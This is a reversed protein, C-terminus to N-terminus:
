IIGVKNLKLLDNETYGLQKCYIDKNHQGLLPAARRISWPTESLKFPAGPCTVKGTGEREIDVFFGRERFHQNEVAEAISNVPALPSKKEKAMKFIEAKTHQMTWELILPELSEWHEARSTREKFLEIEAWEPNGMMEVFRQWQHEESCESFIWGDKCKIFDDPAHDPRVVRPVNLHEYSWYALSPSASFAVSELQSVDIFQGIKTQRQVRVASLTAIAGIIGSLFGAMHKIWLPPQDSSTVQSPTRFGAGGMHWLTMDNAKCDKFPGTQGFPTISTMVLAHNISSLENYDLGLLAMKDNSGDELLIDTQKALSRFIERGTPNELNLTIGYKNTNLYIFLGSRECGRINNLFPGAGRTIDGEGPKEIKIVDAGLDALLKGCFSVSVSNGLEIVKIGQLAVEM